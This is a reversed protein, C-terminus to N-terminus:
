KKNKEVMSDFCAVCAISTGGHGNVRCTIYRLPQLMEEGCEHCYYFGHRIPDLLEQEKHEEMRRQLYKEKDKAASRKLLWVNFFHFALGLVIGGVIATIKPM